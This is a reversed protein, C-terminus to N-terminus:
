QDTLRWMEYISKANLPIDLGLIPFWVNGEHKEMGFLRLQTWPVNKYAFIHLNALNYPSIQTELDHTVQVPIPHACSVSYGYTNALM